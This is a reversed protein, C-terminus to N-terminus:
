NLYLVAKLRELVSLDKEIWSVFKHCSSCLLSFKEPNRLAEAMFNAYNKRTLKIMEGGQVYLKRHIELRKKPKLCVACKGGLVRILEKRQSALRERWKEAYERKTKAKCDDCYVKYRGKVHSKKDLEKGCLRCKNKPLGEFFLQVM